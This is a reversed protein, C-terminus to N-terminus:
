NKEVEEALGDAAQEFNRLWLVMALERGLEPGVFELVADSAVRHFGVRRTSFSPAGKHPDKWGRLGVAVIAGDLRADREEKPEAPDGGGFLYDRDAKTFKALQFRTPTRKPDLVLLSENGTSVYEAVTEPTMEGDLVAPDM